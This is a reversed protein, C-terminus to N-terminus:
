AAEEPEVAAKEALEALAVLEAESLRSLDLVELPGGDPGSVETTQKPRGHVRDLWATATARREPLDPVTETYAEDRSSVVITKEASLGDIFVQAVEDAHEELRQRLLDTVKPLAPRGAKGNAAVFGTAERTAADAHALCVAQDRLPQARCPKGTKTTATCIRKGTAAVDNITANRNTM